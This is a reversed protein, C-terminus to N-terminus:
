RFWKLAKEDFPLISSDCSSTSELNILSNKPNEPDYIVWFCYDEYTSPNNEEFSDLIDDSLNIERRLTKEGVIYEYTVYKTEHVGVKYFDVVKGRAVDFNERVNKRNRSNNLTTWTILCITVIVLLVWKLDDKNIKM